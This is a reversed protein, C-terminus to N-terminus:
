WRRTENGANRAQDSELALLLGEPASIGLEEFKARVEELSLGGRLHFPRDSGFTRPDYMSVYVQTQAEPLGPAEVNLYFHRCPRDWGVDVSLPPLGPVSANFFHKSM